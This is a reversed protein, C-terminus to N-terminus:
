LPNSGRVTERRAQSRSTRHHPVQKAWRRTNAFEDSLMKGVRVNSSASVVGSIARRFLGTMRPSRFRSTEPATWAAMRTVEYLTTTVVWM